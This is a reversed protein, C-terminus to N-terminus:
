IIANEEVFDHIWDQYIKDIKDEDTNKDFPKESCMYLTWRVLADFLINRLKDKFIEHSINDVPNMKM